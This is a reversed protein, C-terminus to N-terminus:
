RWMASKPVQAMSQGSISSHSSSSSSPFSGARSREIQPKRDRIPQPIMRSDASHRWGFDVALDARNRYQIALRNFGYVSLRLVHQQRNSCNSSDRRGAASMSRVTNEVLQKAM